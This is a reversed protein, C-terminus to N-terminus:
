RSPGNIHQPQNMRYAQFSGGPNDELFSEIQANLSASTYVFFFLLVILSDIL